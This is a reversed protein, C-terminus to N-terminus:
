AGPVPFIGNDRIEYIRPRGDRVQLLYNGDPLGAIRKTLRPEGAHPGPRGSRQERKRYIVRIGRTHAADLAAPTAVTDADLVIEAPVTMRLVDKEVIIRKAL